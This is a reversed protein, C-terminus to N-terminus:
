TCEPPTNLLFNMAFYRCRTNDANMAPDHDVLQITADKCFRDRVEKAFKRAATLAGALDGVHNPDFVYIIRKTKNLVLSCAHSNQIGAGGPGAPSGSTAEIYFKIVM